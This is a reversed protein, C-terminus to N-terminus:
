GIGGMARSSDVTVSPKAQDRFSRHAAQCGREPIRPLAPVNFKAKEIAEALEKRAPEMLPSHFAGGVQLQIARRAGAATLMDCAKRVSEISGSVVVQGNCNYNAAVVTGGNANIEACIKEVTEDPLGIIAAMTGPNAECCKQMATARVSVLKLAEEFSLAGSVTLASFEGLSHGAAM